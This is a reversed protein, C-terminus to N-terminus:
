LNKNYALGNKMEAENAVPLIIIENEFNSLLLYASNLVNLALTETM